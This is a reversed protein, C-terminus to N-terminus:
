IFTSTINGTGTARWRVETQVGSQAARITLVELVEILGATTLAKLAALVALRIREITKDTLVGGSPLDIGLTEVASSGLATRLALYVRQSTSDWGVKEGTANLVFDGTVADIRACDGRTGDPQVFLRAATSNIPASYGVGVGTSGIGCAGLGLTSV